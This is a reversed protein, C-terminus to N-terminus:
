KVMVRVKKMVAEQSKGTSFRFVNYLERIAGNSPEEDRCAKWALRFGSSFFVWRLLELTDKHVTSYDCNEKLVEKFDKGNKGAKYFRYFVAESTDISIGDVTM